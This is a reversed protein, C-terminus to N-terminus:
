IRPSPLTSTEQTIHQELFSRFGEAGHWFYDDSSDVDKRKNVEACWEEWLRNLEDKTM